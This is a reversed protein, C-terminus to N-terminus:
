ARLSGVRNIIIPFRDFRLTVKTVPLGASDCPLRPILPHMKRALRRGTGCERTILEQAFLPMASLDAGQRQAWCSNVTQVSLCHKLTGKAKREKAMM